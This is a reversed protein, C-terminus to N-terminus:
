DILVKEILYSLCIGFFSILGGIPLLTIFFFSQLVTKFIYSYRYAIDMAPNEFMNNLERQTLKDSVFRRRILLFFYSFDVLQLIPTVLSNSVFIIFVNTILLDLVILEIFNIM